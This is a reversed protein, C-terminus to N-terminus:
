ICNDEISLESRRHWYPKLTDPFESLWGQKTYRLVRSLVPDRNTATKLQASTVPLTEIQQINFLKPDPVKADRVTLFPYVLCVIQVQM